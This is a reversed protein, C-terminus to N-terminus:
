GCFVRHKDNHRAIKELDARLPAPWPTREALWAKTAESFRIPKAWACDADIRIVESTGDPKRFVLYTHKFDGIVFDKGGIPNSSKAPTVELYIGPKM